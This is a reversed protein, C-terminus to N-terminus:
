AQQVPLTVTFSTLTVKAHQQINVSTLTMNASSTGVSGDFVPTTGDSEFVRFWTAQGTASADTDDAIANATLVGAAAAGFAPNGFRLSALLNQDSVPTDPNAPQAGDYIRIYGNDCLVSLADLQANQVLESLRMNLSM